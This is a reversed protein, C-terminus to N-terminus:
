IDLAVAEGHLLDGRTSAELVPGFTHGLDMARELSREWLNPELEALMGDIARRMVEEGEASQLRDRLLAAGWTEILDFLRPDRAIGVKLIEAMGCRLHRDPLSLLFSRDIFSALPSFYTGIRNRNGRYNIGTKVGVGADVMAVLTTPVRIYPTGRRYISAA